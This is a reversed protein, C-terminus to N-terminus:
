LTRIYKTWNCRLLVTNNHVKLAKKYGAQLMSVVIEKESLKNGNQIVWYYDNEHETIDPAVWKTPRWFQFARAKEVNPAILQLILTNGDKLPRPFCNTIKVGKIGEKRLFLFKDDSRDDNLISASRNDINDKFHRRVKNGDENYPAMVCWHEEDESDMVWVARTNFVIRNKSGDPFPEGHEIIFLNGSKKDYITPELKQIHEM